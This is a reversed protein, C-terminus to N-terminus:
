SPAASTPKSWSRRTGRNRSAAPGGSKKAPPRTSPTRAVPKRRQRQHLRPERAAGALRGFGLREPRGRRRGAVVAQRRPRVCVGGVQWLLLLNAPRRQGPHQQRLRPRRPHAGARAPPRRYREELAVPRRDRRLCVLHRTLGNVDGSQGPVGFGSFCTLYIKDGVLIPSSTGPGPLATKWVVNNTGSWSTPLTKESTVGQGAPGRFQLWEEAAILPLAFILAVLLAAHRM